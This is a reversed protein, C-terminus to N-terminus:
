SVRTCQTQQLKITLSAIANTNKSIVPILEEQLTGGVPALLANGVYRRSTKVVTIVFM